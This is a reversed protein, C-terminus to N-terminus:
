YTAQFGALFGALEAMGKRTIRIQSGEVHANGVDEICGDERLYTLENDSVGLPPVGAFRIAALIQGSREVTMEYWAPLAKTAEM